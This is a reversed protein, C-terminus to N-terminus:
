SASGVYVLILSSYAELSFLEDHFYKGGKEAPSSKLVPM